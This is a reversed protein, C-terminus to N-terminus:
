QVPDAGDHASPLTHEHGGVGAGFTGVHSAASLDSSQLVAHEDVQRPDAGPKLTAPQASWDYQSVGGAHAALETQMHGELPGGGGGAGGVPAHLSPSSPCTACWNTCDTPPELTHQGSLQPVQPPASHALRGPPLLSHQTPSPVLYPIVALPTLQEVLPGGHITIPSAVVSSTSAVSSTDFGFTHWCRTFPLSVQQELSLSQPLWPPAHQAQPLDPIDNMSPPFRLHLM